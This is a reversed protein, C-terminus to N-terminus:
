MRRLGSTISNWVHPLTELYASLDTRVSAKRVSVTGRLLASRAAELRRMAWRGCRARQAVRAVWLSRAASSLASRGAGPENRLRVHLLRLDYWLTYSVEALSVQTRVRVILASVVVSAPHSPVPV